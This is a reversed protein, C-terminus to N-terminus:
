KNEWRGTDSCFAKLIRAPTGAAMSHPPITGRVLSNAGIVSGKGISAPGLIVSNDGIWVDDEIVVPGGGGLTRASPPKHPESQQDGTYIGHNHDGVYIHSGFLVRNGILISEISSIHVGDSIRVEDGIQIRPRFRQRGYATVAELWLDRGVSIRRGFQVSRGGIIRCGRGLRLQPAHLLTGLWAGRIGRLVHGASIAIAIPLPNSRLLERIADSRSETM